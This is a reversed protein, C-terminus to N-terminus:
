SNKDLSVQECPGVIHGIQDARAQMARHRLAEMMHDHVTPTYDPTPGCTTTFPSTYPVYDPNRITPTGGPVPYPVQMPLGHIHQTRNFFWHLVRKLRESDSYHTQGRPPQNLVCLLGNMMDLEDDGTAPFSVSHHTREGSLANELAQAQQNM